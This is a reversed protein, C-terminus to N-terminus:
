HAEHEIKVRVELHCGFEVDVEKRELSPVVQQHCLDVGINILGELWAGKVVYWEKMVKNELSTECEQTFIDIQIAIEEKSTVVGSLDLRPYRVM